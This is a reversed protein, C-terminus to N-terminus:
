CLRSPAKIAPAKAPYTVVATLPLGPGSYVTADIIRGAASVKVTGHPQYRATTKISWRITRGRSRYSLGAVGSPLLMGGVNPLLPSRRRAARFCRGTAAPAYVRAGIQILSVRAGTWSEARDHVSDVIYRSKGSQSSESLILVKAAETKALAAAVRAPPAVARISKGKARASLTVGAVGASRAAIATAPAVALAAAGACVGLRTCVGRSM